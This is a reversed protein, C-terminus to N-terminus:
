DNEEGKLYQELLESNEFINGIVELEISFRSLDSFTYYEIRRRDEVGEVMFSANSEIHVIKGISETYNYVDILKVIDGEFIKENNIDERGVYLMLEVDELPHYNEFMDTYGIGGDSTIEFDYIMKKKNNDWVRAKFNKM